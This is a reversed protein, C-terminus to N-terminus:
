VIPVGVILSTCKFSSFSVLAKGKKVIHTCLLVVIQMGLISDEGSSSRAPVRIESM